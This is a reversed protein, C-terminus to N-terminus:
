KQNGTFKTFFEHTGKDARCLIRMATIFIIRMDLWFSWSDIYEIDNKFKEEWTLLNRGRIQTLGTLGPRMEHRRFQEPTYLEIYSILLPRPGVLSMDGKLVNFLQPLEDFDTQRLKIGWNKLRKEAPLLAGNQDMDNAMTRFKYLTFPRGYLGTREQKFLVPGPSNLKIYIFVGFMIPVSLVMAALSVVIDFLRKAALGAKKKALGSGSIEEILISKSGNL